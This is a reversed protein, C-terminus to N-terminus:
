IRESLTLTFSSGKKVKSVVEIKANLREAAQVAIYLGLGSGDNTSTARYFMDFIKPIGEEDIGIGNDEIKILIDKGSRILSTKVFCKEKNVDSYKIANSILNSLISVMLYRDTYFYQSTSDDIILEPIKQDNSFKLNTYINKIIHQFDLKEISLPSKASKSYNLIDNFISDLKKLQQEIKEFYEKSTNDKAEMKGLNTLGLTSAIPARLDHSTSYLFSDLEKNSRTLNNHENELLWIVM